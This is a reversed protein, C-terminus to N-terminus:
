SLNRCHARRQHGNRWTVRQVEPPYKAELLRVRKFFLTQALNLWVGRYRVRGAVTISSFRPRRPKCNYSALMLRDRYFSRGAKPSLSSV